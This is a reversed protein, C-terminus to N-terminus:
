GKKKIVYGAEDLFRHLANATKHLNIRGCQDQRSSDHLLNCLGEQNLDHTSPVYEALRRELRALKRAKEADVLEDGLFMRAQGVLIEVDAVEEALAEVPIRGRDVQNIKAILEACEEQMQRWQGSTGYKELCELYLERESKM